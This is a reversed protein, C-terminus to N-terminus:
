KSTTTSTNAPASDAKAKAEAKEEKTDPMLAAYAEDVSKNGKVKYGQGYVLNTIDAPSSVNCEGGDKDVLTVTKPGAM